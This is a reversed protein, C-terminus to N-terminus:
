IFSRPTAEAIWSTGSLSEHRCVAGPTLLGMAALVVSVATTGSVSPSRSVSGDGRVLVSRVDAGLDSAPGVFACATVPVTDRLGPPTLTLMADLTTILELAARRLELAHASSLPVGAAEGEVIAVVECPFLELSAARVAHRGDRAGAFRHSLASVRLLAEPKM